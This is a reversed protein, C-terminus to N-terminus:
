IVYMICARPRNRNYTFLTRYICVDLYLTIYMHTHARARPTDSRITTEMSGDVAAYNIAAM